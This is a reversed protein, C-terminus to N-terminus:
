FPFISTKKRLEIKLRVLDEKDENEGSNVKDSFLALVDDHFYGETNLAIGKRRHFYGGSKIEFNLGDIKLSVGNATRDKKGPVLDSAGYLGCFEFISLYVSVAKTEERLGLLVMASDYTVVLESKELRLFECLKNLALILQEKNM